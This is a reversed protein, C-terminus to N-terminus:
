EEPEPVEYGLRSASPFHAWFTRALEDMKAYGAHSRLQEVWAFFDSASGSWNPMSRKERSDGKDDENTDAGTFPRTCVHTEQQSHAGYAQKELSQTAILSLLGLIFCSVLLFACLRNM